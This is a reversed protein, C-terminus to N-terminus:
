TFYTLNQTTQFKDDLLEAIEGYLENALSYAHEEWSYDQVRLTAFGSGGSQSPPAFDEYTFEADLLFQGVDTRVPKVPISKNVVVDCMACVTKTPEINEIHM